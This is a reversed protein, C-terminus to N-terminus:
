DLWRAIVRRGHESEIKVKGFQALLRLAAANASVAMSDLNGDNNEYVHQEIMGVLADLLRGSEEDNFRIKSEMARLDMGRRGHEGTGWCKDCIGRTTAPHGNDDHWTSTSGYHKYGYGGCGVCADDAMIRATALLSEAYDLRSEHDDAQILRMCLKQWEEEM